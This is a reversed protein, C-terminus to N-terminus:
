AAVAFQSDNAITTKAKNVLHKRRKGPILRAQTAAKMDRWQRLWTVGMM